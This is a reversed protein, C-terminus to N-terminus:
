RKWEVRFTVLRQHYQLCLKQTTWHYNHRRYQKKSLIDQAKGRIFETSDCSLEITLDNKDQYNILNSNSAGNWLQHLEKIM